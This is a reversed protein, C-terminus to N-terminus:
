EIEIYNAMGTRCYLKIDKKLEDLDNYTGVWEGTCDICECKYKKSLIDPANEKEEKKM